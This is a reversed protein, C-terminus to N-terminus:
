FCLQSRLVCRELGEDTDLLKFNVESRLTTADSNARLVIKTELCAKFREAISMDGIQEHIDIVRYEGAYVEVEMADSSGPHAADFADVNAMFDDDDESPLQGAPLAASVQPSGMLDDGGSTANAAVTLALQALGSAASRAEAAGLLGLSVSGSRELEDNGAVESALLMEDETEDTDSEADDLEEYDADSDSEESSTSYDEEDSSSM